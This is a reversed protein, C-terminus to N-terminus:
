WLKFLSKKRKLRVLKIAETDLLTPDLYGELQYGFFSRLAEEGLELPHFPFPYPNEPDEDEEDNHKGAWYDVEFDRKTGIDEIIGDDPSLSLSRRLQKEEWLAFAFWDVVSHMAHLVVVGGPMGELFRSELKSPHDLGFEKAAVIAVGRYVGVFVEDDPPCTWTLTGEELPEFRERPFLKAALALSAERDLEPQAALAARADSDSSILMWTKAGV